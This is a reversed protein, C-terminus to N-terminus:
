DPIVFSMHMEAHRLQFDEWEQNTLKGFAPHDVRSLERHQREVATQLAALGAETTTEGPIYKESSKFGAPLAVHLFKHKMFLRMFFRMPAPLRFDIGDISTNLSMALHMLIQGLSWNGIMHVNSKAMQEADALLDDWSDFHVARRGQVKKTIVTM